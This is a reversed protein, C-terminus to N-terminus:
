ISVENLKEIHHIFEDKGMSYQTRSRRDRVTIKNSSIEEDGIILLMPIKSKEAVRIRKNLSDNRDFLKVYFGKSILEKKLKKSYENHAENVPIIALQVPAIFFPFEGAYHEILIGVFREFSGLVTRHIMIPQAKSNAEDNYSLQFRHPLNFDLQITSCQWKRKLSDMINVDIKPGYFAGDGENIKYSLKSSDLADKLANTAKQWIVDSGIAKDPKTSIFLEYKFGFLQMAKDIYDIIDIIEEKIQGETCFIHADDQTFSRVRFLGNLTGSLEHRHVLGYECYRIPLDRYSHLEHDFIKVHGVCNMPKIGYEVNDITTLYMNEGYNDYHGSVKWVESKLIEPGKVSKYGRRYNTDTLIKEIKNRINMGNPLWIPMGSGVSEDIMFLNMQSGLLKHDRKKAEEIFTIYEKLSEKTAFATGYIRTLMMNKSDGGLYAGSIKTLKINKLLKTHPLHPGKCLDTFSGQSYLSINEDHINQLVASKLVDDKYRIDVDKRSISSKIIECGKKSLEKMKKEIKPLDDESITSSTKFDYYFGDEIVPGVYFTVDDYMEVLAQALLHAASHRMISLADVSDDFYIEDYGSSNTVSQTDYIVGDKKYGILVNDM